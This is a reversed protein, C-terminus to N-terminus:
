DIEEKQPPNPLVENGDLGVRIYDEGGSIQVDWHDPYGAHEYDRVWIRGEEDVYGRKGRRPGKAVEKKDIITKGAKNKVLKPKFPTKGDVPLEADTIQNQIKNPLPEAM